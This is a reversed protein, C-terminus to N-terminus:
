FFPIRVLKTPMGDKSFGGSKPSHKMRQVAGLLLPFFIELSMGELYVLLVGNNVFILHRGFIPQM